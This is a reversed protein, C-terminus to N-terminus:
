SRSFDTANGEWPLDCVMAVDAKTPQNVSLVADTFRFDIMYDDWFPVLGKQIHLM